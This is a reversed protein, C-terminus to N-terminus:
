SFPAWDLAFLKLAHSAIAAPQVDSGGVLSHENVLLLLAVPDDVGDAFAEREGRHISFKPPVGM